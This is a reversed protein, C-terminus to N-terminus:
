SIEREFVIVCVHRTFAALVAVGIICLHRTYVKESGRRSRREEERSYDGEEDREDRTDWM